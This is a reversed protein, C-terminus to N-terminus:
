FANSTYIHVFLFINKNRAMSNKLIKDDDM